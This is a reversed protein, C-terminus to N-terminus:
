YSRRYGSTVSRSRYLRPARKRPTGGSFERRKEEMILRDLQDQARKEFLEVSGDNVNYYYGAEAAALYMLIEGANNLLWHYIRNGQLRIQQTNQATQALTPTLMAFNSQADEATTGTPFFFVTGGSDVVSLRNLAYNAVTEAYRESTITDVPALVGYYYVTYSTDSAPYQTHWQAGQRTYTSPLYVRAAGDQNLVEEATSPTLTCTTQDQTVTIARTNRWDQPISITNSNAALTGTVQLEFPATRAADSEYFRRVARDIWQDALDTMGNGIVDESIYDDRDVLSLVANKLQTYTRM